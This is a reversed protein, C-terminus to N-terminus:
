DAINQKPRRVRQEVFVCRNSVRHPYDPLAAIRSAFDDLEKRNAYSVISRAFDQMSITDNDDIDYSFFELRLVEDQLRTLFGHFTKFDLQDTGNKGFFKEMLGHRLDKAVWGRQRKGQRAAVGSKSVQM